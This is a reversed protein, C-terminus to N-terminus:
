ASEGPLWDGLVQAESYVLDELPIRPTEGYVRLVRAALDRAGTTESEILSVVERRLSPSDRLVRRASSRAEIVSAEWGRRLDTAPSAQLKMLHQLIVSIYSELSRRDARVLGELEEALHDYDLRAHDHARLAQAQEAAWRVLDTDYLGSM